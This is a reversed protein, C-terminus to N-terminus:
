LDVEYRFRYSVYGGLSGRNTSTVSECAGTGPCSGATGGVQNQLFVVFASSSAFPMSDRGLTGQDELNTILSKTSLFRNPADLPLTSTVVQYGDILNAPRANATSGITANYLVFTSTSIGVYINFTSSVTGTLKVATYDVTADIGLRNVESATTTTTPLTLRGWGTCSFKFSSDSYKTCVRETRVQNEQNRIAGLSEENNSKLNELVSKESVLLYEALLLAMKSEPNQLAYLVVAENIAEEVGSDTAALVARGGVLATSVVLCLIAVGVFLRTMIKESIKNKLKAKM